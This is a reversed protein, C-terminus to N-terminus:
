KMRDRTHLKGALLSLLIGFGLIPVTPFFNYIHYKSMKPMYKTHLRSFSREHSTTTPNYSYITKKNIIIIKNYKKQHIFFTNHALTHAQFLTTTPTTSTTRIRSHQFFVWISFFFLFFYLFIYIINYSM